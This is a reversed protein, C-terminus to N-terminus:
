NGDYGLEEMAEKYLAETVYGIHWEVKNEAFSVGKGKVTNSIIIKPRQTELYLADRLAIVDHGDVDLVDFGMAKFRENLNGLKMVQETTGDNQLNNKDVILTITSLGYHIITAAAEWVSGEDCEGDGVVVYFRSGNGRVKLALASGVALSLGQGLSGGSFELGKTIDMKPHKYIMSGPRFAGEIEDDTMFGAYHLAAYLGIASHAKSLIFRDREDWNPNTVDYKMVEGYLVALLEVISMGGGVHAGKSGSAYAMKMIDIRMEYAIKELEERTKMEDGIQKQHTQAM